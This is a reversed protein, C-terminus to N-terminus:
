CTTQLKSHHRGVFLVTPSCEGRRGKQIVRGRTGPRLLLTLSLQCPASLPLWQINFLPRTTTLDFGPHGVPFAPCSSALQRGTQFSSPHGPDPIVIVSTHPAMPSFHPIQILSTLHASTEPNGNQGTNCFYIHRSIFIYTFLPNKKGKQNPKTKPTKNKAGLKM